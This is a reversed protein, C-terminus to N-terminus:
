IILIKTILYIYIITINNNIHFLDISILLRLLPVDPARPKGWRQGCKRLNPLGCFGSFGWFRWSSRKLHRMLFNWSSDLWGVFINYFPCYHVIRLQPPTGRPRSPPPQQASAPATRGCVASAGIWAAPPLSRATWRTALSAGMSKSLMQTVGGGRPPHTQAQSFTGWVPPPWRVFGHVCRRVVRQFHGQASWPLKTATFQTPQRASTAVM